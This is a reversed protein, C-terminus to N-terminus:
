ELFKTFLIKRLLFSLSDPLEELGQVLLHERGYINQMMNAEQEDIQNETLFVGIVDIGRKRTYLVADHTDIIGNESYNYASPEGDSLVLLIQHEAQHQMLEEAAVRISFGDRNDEQSELQMITPGSKPDLSQDFSIVRHFYNPQEEEDAEFGDEWFGIVNHPIKLEKLVEHFLVAAKKTEDMKNVMSASCDILLTFVADIEKSEHDKKYFVRPEDDMVLPLLQKKSLRGTLLHDRAANQKHELAQDITRKLKLKESQIANVFDKYVQQDELTPAPIEMDQKTARLNEKGYKGTQGDRQQKQEDLNELDSYDNEQSEASFGQVSAMAQDGDETERAGDGLINTKTGQELEYRLFSQSRDSNENERNWTSFKEDMVEDQDEVDEADDNALPDTRTLEDFLLDNQFNEAHKIPFVFYRNIADQYDENIMNEIRICLNVIEKTSQAEFAEFLIPKISDLTTLQKENARKYHLFPSTSTLTLYIMCFLEDLPFNRIVNTELQTEFYRTYTETRSQFWSITGRRSKRIIEELRLDELLTFLQTMFHPLPTEEVFEYIRQWEHLSTHNITGLARLLVDTKYGVLRVNPEYHDWFRSASLKRDNVHIYHGFQYDFELDPIKSLVSAMDQLEAFLKANIIENNFKIM